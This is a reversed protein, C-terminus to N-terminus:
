LLRRDNLYVAKTTKLASTVKTTKVSVLDWAKGKWAGAPPRPSCAGVAKCLGDTISTGRLRSGSGKWERAKVRSGM